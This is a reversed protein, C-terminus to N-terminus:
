AMDAVQAPNTTFCLVPKCAPSAELWCSEQQTNFERRPNVKQELQAMKNTQQHLRDRLMAAEKAAADSADGSPGSPAQGAPKQVAAHVLLYNPNLIQPM